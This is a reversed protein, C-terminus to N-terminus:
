GQARMADAVINSDEDGTQVKGLKEMVEASEMAQRNLAMAEEQDARADRLRQAERIPRLMTLPAGAAEGVADITNDIDIRDLVEPFIEASSLAFNMTTNIGQLSVLKQAQALLSIYEVELVQRDLEEPPPPIKGRKNLINFTRTVCPDLFETTQREIVPGLMLLKEEHREAIETATPPTGYPNSVITIFLDNYFGEKIAQQVNLIKQETSGIDFRVQYLPGIGEILERAVYNEGGPLLNLKGMFGEPIAMPPDNTKHIAKLSSIQMDQLMKVDPLSEHSPGLGYVDSGIKDWRPVFCPFEDYGSEGLIGEYGNATSVYDLYTSEWPMNRSDIRVPDRDKRPQCAWLVKLYTDKKGMNKLMNQATTSLRGTGFREKMTRPTMWFLRYITDVMGRENTAIVYEGATFTKFRVHTTPDEEEYMAGTAFAVLEGYLSHAENYFNSAAYTAYMIKEVEHLWNRVPGFTMLDRDEIALRFWPRTPSTMGSHMGSAAVRAARVGAADTIDSMDVSQDPVDGKDTYRGRRPAIFRSIDKWDNRIRDQIDLMEKYRLLYGKRRDSLAM